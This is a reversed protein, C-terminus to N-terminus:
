SVVPGGSTSAKNLRDVTLEASLHASAQYAADIHGNDEALIVDLLQAAELRSEEGWDEKFWVNSTCYILDQVVREWLFYTLAVWDIEMQGYGQWFAAAHPPRVFLFDREKPALLVEDWDVVFVQDARDRILNRAHLDGHCIVSPLTRSRLVGALKELSTLITHITSQHAVWSSRVVREVVGGDEAHVHQTEFARVWQMYESPDFTEKRLSEFGVPPLSVQHIQQFSTGLQKWQEDTMGTLSSEGSIWPYVIATWEALVTWLAGSRSRLPAVVSIIGQDNLYRPVLCRPEYLPRSTVKLLYAMGSESVARYVGADYDHGLPLFELTVRGLDYQEQLCIRLDEEAIRPPERMARSM